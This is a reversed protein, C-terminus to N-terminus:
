REPPPAGVAPLPTIEVGPEFSSLAESMEVQYSGYAKAAFEGSERHIEVAIQDRELDLAWDVFQGESRREKRLLPRVAFGEPPVVRVRTEWSKELPGLEFPGHRRGVAPAGLLRREWIAPLRGVLREGTSSFQHAIEYELRLVLPENLESLNETSAGLM